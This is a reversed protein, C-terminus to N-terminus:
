SAKGIEAVESAHLLMRGAVELRTLKGQAVWRYLTRSPIGYQRSAQRISLLETVPIVVSTAM